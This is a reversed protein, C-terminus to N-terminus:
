VTTVERPFRLKVITGQGPTSVIQLKGNLLRSREEMSTLGLSQGAAVRALVFGIGTDRVVLSVFRKTGAVAVYATKAKSHKAVNRLAEQAVRYVSSAVQPSLGGDVNRHEFEVHIGERRAFEECYSRLAVALGLHDLISPHLQYALHRVSDSLKVVRDQIAGIARNFDPSSSAATAVQMSGIDVALAALAQNLDDHLERSIRRRELDEAELLRGNLARIRAHSLQLAADRRRLAAEARRRQTIDRSNVIVGGIAPITLLNRAVSEVVRYGSDKHRFRFELPKSPEHTVLVESFAARVAPMDAPHILNFVSKGILEETSYGLIQQIAPSEYKIDGNKDLITVIDVENEILARYHQESEKLRQEALVRQTVDTHTVVAGAVVPWPTACLRFWRQVEPSHCPYELTFETTAGALTAKLGSLAQSAEECDQSAKRCVELYNAGVGFKNESLGGNESAFRSWAENVTVITGERDLLAINSTLGSMLADHVREVHRWHQEREGFANEIAVECYGHSVGEASNLSSTVTVASFSSGDKRRRMASWVVVPGNQKVTRLATNAPGRNDEAHACLISMHRGIVEHESYGYLAEAGASWETILGAIDLFVIACRNPNSLLLRCNLSAEPEAHRREHTREFKGM